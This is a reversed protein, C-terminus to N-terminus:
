TQNQAALREEHSLANQKNSFSCSFRKNEQSQNKEQAGCGKSLRTLKASKIVEREM